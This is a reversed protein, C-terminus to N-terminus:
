KTGWVISVIDTLPGGSRVHQLARTANAHHRRMRELIEAKAFGRWHAPVGGREVFEMDTSIGDLVTLLVREEEVRQDFVLDEQSTM